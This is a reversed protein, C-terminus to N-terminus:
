RRAITEVDFRKHYFWVLHMLVFEAEPPSLEPFEQLMVETVRNMCEIIREPSTGNM